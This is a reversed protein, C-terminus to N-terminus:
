PKALAASLSAGIADSAKTRATDFAPRASPEGDMFELKAAYVRPQDGDDIGDVKGPRVSGSAGNKTGTVKVADDQELSRRYAGPHPDKPRQGVPVRRSWEDAIIRGGAQLAAKAATKKVKADLANLKAALEPGGELYANFRTQSGKRAPATVAM